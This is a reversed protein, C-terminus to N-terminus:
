NDSKGFIRRVSGTVDMKWTLGIDLTSIGITNGMWAAHIRVNKNEKLPFFELGAGYFMYDGKDYALEYPIEDSIHEFGYKAFARGWTWEYSPAVLATYDDKFLGKMEYTRTMFELDITFDGLYFRNGFNLAKTYKGEEFEWLNATWYSEYFDWAGQWAASYSFLGPEDYSFPSNAVQAIVAQDEAPYWAASVGWQWCDFMNYFMSNMDFYSDITNANYEFSGVLLADKGANFAFSGVEYTLLLWNTESFGSNFEGYAPAISQNWSYSFSDSIKGDVNLYLGDGCFRGANEAFDQVYGGRMDLSIDPIYEAIDATKADGWSSKQLPAMSGVEQASVASGITMLVVGLFVFFRKM